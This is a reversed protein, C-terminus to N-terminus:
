MLAQSEQGRREAGGQRGNYGGLLVWSDERAGGIGVDWGNWLQGILLRGELATMM